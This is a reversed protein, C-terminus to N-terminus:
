RHAILLEFSVALQLSNSVIRFEIFPLRALAEEVLLYYQDPIIFMQSISCLLPIAIESMMLIESAVMPFSRKLSVVHGLLQSRIILTFDLGVFALLKDLGGGRSTPGSKADLLRHVYDLHHIGAGFSRGRSGTSWLVTFAGRNKFEKSRGALNCSLSLLRRYIM